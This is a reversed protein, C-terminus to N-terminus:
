AGVVLPRAIADISPLLLKPRINVSSRSLLSTLSVVRTNSASRFPTYIPCSSALPPVQAIFNMVKVNTRLSGIIIPDLFFKSIYKAQETAKLYLLIVQEM